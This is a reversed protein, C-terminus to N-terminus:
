RYEEIPKTPIARNWADEAKTISEIAKSSLPKPTFALEPKPKEM